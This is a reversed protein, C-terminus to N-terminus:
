NYILLLSGSGPLLPLFALWEKDKSSLMGRGADEAPSRERGPEAGKESFRDRNQNGAAASPENKETISSTYLLCTNPLGLFGRVM